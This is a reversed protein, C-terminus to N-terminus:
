SAVMGGEGDIGIVSIRILYLLIIIFYPSLFVRGEGVNVPKLSAEPTSFYLRSSASSYNFGYTSLYYVASNFQSDYMYYM